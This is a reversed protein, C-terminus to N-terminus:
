ASRRKDTAFWYFREEGRGVSALEGDAIMVSLLTYLKAKGVIQKLKRELRQQLEDLNLPRGATTLLDRIGQTKSDARRM